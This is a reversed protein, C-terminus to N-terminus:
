KVFGFKARKWSIIGHGLEYGEKYKLKNFNRKAQGTRNGSRCYYIFSKSKFAEMKSYFSKKYFDINIAGKIHGAAFERPTRIDIITYKGSEAMKHFKEASITVVGSKATASQASASFSVGFVVVFLLFLNKM